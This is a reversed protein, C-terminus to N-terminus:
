AEAGVPEAAAFYRRQALSWFAVPVLAVLGCGAM